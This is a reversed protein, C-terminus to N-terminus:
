IDFKEQIKKVLKHYRNYVAQRSIGILSAVERYSYEQYGDLGFLCKILFKDDEDLTEIYQIIKEVAVSDVAQSEVDIDSFILENKNIDETDDNINGVEILMEYSLTNNNAHFTNLELLSSLFEDTLKVNHWNLEKFANRLEDLTINRNEKLLYKKNENYAKRSYYVLNIPVHTVFNNQSIYDLIGYKIGNYAHSSLKGKGEDYSYYSQILGLCGSQYLEQYDISFGIKQYYTSSIAKVLNIYKNVYEELNLKM